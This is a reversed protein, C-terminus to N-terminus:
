KKVFQRVIERDATKIKVFYVGRNFDSVDINNVDSNTNYVKVGTINYINIEKIIEDIKVNLMDDAPNPYLKIEKDYNIKVISTTDDNEEINNIANLADVCGSGTYNSKTESLKKATSELTECIMAPTLKRHKELMLCVVGTVCPAAQSTGDMKVYGSNNYPDCSTIECGPACVDPRILGPKTSGNYQYDKFSTNQWSFPGYSSVPAVNNKDDVAGVAICASIGGANEQQDPHIWPPPCGGPVRVNNPVACSIQFMGDNGVATIIAVNAELASIYANRLMERTTKPANTFGLSMNMVHAGHELAFEIGSCIGEPTGSGSNDMVKICMITADPAIGTETGSTGDGCIIGACHTGHGFGDSVDHSNEYTNYGHNPYEDGGDWLNNVIDAHKNVGTDLIAVLVGKGTYGLEWVRNAKVHKISPTTGRQPEVVTGKEDWLLFQKENYGILDVDQHNSLLRIYDKNATCTITNSVWHSVIDKVEGNKEGAELISIIDKQTQKSFDKLESIVVERRIDLDDINDTTKRLKNVNIQSKLIINVRIMENDKEDLVMQLEPEIANMNQSFVYNCLLLSAILLFLHKKM